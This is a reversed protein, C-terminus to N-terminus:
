PLITMTINQTVAGGQPAVEVWSAVLTLHSGNTTVALGGAPLTTSAGGASLNGSTQMGCQWSWLDFSAMQAVTCTQSAVFVTGDHFASCYPGPLTGCAIGANMATVYNAATAGDNAHVREALENLLLTAQARIGSDGASRLAAIQLAALGLLGISLVVMAVLVEILSFGRHRIFM